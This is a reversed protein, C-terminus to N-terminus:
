LYSELIYTFYITKFSVVDLFRKARYFLGINEAIKDLRITQNLRVEQNTKKSYTKINRHPYFFNTNNAFM